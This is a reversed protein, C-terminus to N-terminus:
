THNYKCKCVYGEPIFNMNLHIKSVHFFLIDNEADTPNILAIQVVKRLITETTRYTVAVPTSNGPSTAANALAQMARTRLRCYWQLTNLFFHVVLCPLCYLDRRVLSNPTPLCQVPSKLSMLYNHSHLFLFGTVKIYLDYIVKVNLYLITFTWIKLNPSILDWIISYIETM